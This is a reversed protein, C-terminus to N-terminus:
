GRYCSHRLTCAFSNARAASGPIFNLERQRRIIDLASAPTIVDSNHVGAFRLPQGYDKLGSTHHLLEAVTIKSGYDPLEPVYQRVDDALSSELPLGTLSCCRYM